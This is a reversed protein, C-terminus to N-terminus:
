SDIKKFLITVEHRPSTYRRSFCIMAGGLETLLPMEKFGKKIWNVWVRGSEYLLKEKLVVTQTLERKLTIAELGLMSAINNFTNPGAFHLHDGIHWHPVERQYAKKGLQSTTLFIVGNNALVREIAKFVVIPDLLHSFVNIMSVADFSEPALSNSEIPESHVKLGRSQCHTLRQEDMEIGEVEYGERQLVEMFTGCGCGIDLWRKGRGYGKIWDIYKEYVPVRQLEDIRHIEPPPSKERIGVIAMANVPRPSVYFHGCSMCRNLWFGNEQFEPHASRSQCIECGVREQLFDAGEMKANNLM